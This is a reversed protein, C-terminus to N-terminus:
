TFPGAVREIERIGRGPEAMSCMGDRGAIARGAYLPKTATIQLGGLASEERPHSIRATHGTVSARARHTGTPSLFQSTLATLEIKSASRGAM